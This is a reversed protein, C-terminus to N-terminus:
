TRSSATLQGFLRMRLSATDDNVRCSVQQSLRLFTGSLTREVETTIEQGARYMKDLAILRYSIDTAQDRITGAWEFPSAVIPDSSTGEDVNSYDTVAVM